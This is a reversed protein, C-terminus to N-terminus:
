GTGDTTLWYLVVLLVTSWGTFLVTGGAMSWHWWGTILATGGALLWYLEVLQTGTGCGNVLVTGGASYWYGCSLILVM